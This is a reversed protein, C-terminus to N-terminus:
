RVPHPAERWLDPPSTEPQGAARKDVLVRLVGHAREDFGVLQALSEPVDGGDVADAQVDGAAFDEAKEAGIAGTFGRGHLHDRAEELGVAPAGDDATVVHLVGRFECFGLEAVHGFPGGGIGFHRRAREEGEDGFDAAIAAALNCLADIGGHFLGAKGRDEVLGNFRERFTVLPTDANRLGNQMVRGDEHHVLGGVAEIGVLFVVDAFEDLGHGRLLGDDDGGMDKFFDFGHAGAGDDDIAAPDDGVAGGFVQEMADAVVARDRDADGRVARVGRDAKQLCGLVDGADFRQLLAFPWM